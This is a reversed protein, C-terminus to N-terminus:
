INMIAFLNATSSETPKSYNYRIYIIIDYVLVGIDVISYRGDPM